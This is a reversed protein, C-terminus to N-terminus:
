QTPTALEVKRYVDALSLRCGISPLEIVDELRDALAITWQGDAQRARLEVDVSESAVLLYAQLPEFTRFHKFKLGRDYAETSPSLVEVIVVPNLLTQQQQSGVFQPSCAVVVDPYTYLGTGSVRVRMQYRECPTKELQQGLYQSINAAILNHIRTAGAMAFMEGRYYKSRFEAKSEIELYQEPTLFTKPITSVAGRLGWLLM